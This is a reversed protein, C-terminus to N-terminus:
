PRVFVVSLNGVPMDVTRDLRLGARAAEDRVTELDRLGWSPDRRRLGADFAADNPGRWGGGSRYPGYLYLVGGPPLLRAAGAMLAECAIWPAIHILNIAVVAALPPDCPTEEVPWPRRLVDLDLPPRLNAAPSAERWAAVSARLAADPESPQWVLPALRPAFYAAHQGTGSAIELVTGEAPLVQRLVGLIPDRNRETAEAHLRADPM